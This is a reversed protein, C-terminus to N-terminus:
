TRSVYIIFNLSVQYQFETNLGPGAVRKVLWGESAPIRGRPRVVLSYVISDRTRVLMWQLIGDTLLGFHIM